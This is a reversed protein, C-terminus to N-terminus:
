RGDARAEDPGVIHFTRIIEDVDARMEDANSGRCRGQIMYGSDSQPPSITLIRAYQDVTGRPSRTETDHVRGGAIQMQREHSYTAESQAAQAVVKKDDQMVESRAHDSHDSHDSVFVLIASYDANPKAQPHYWRAILDEIPNHHREMFIAVGSSGKPLKSEVWHQPLRFACRRGGADLPPGYVTQEPAPLLAWTVGLAALAVLVCGAVLCGGHTRRRAPPPPENIM